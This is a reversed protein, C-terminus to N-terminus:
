APPKKYAQREREREMHEYHECNEVDGSETGHLDEQTAMCAWEPYPNDLCPLRAWENKCTHCKM